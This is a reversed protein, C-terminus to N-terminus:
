EYENPVACILVLPKSSKNRFQHKEGPPIFAFDGKKVKREEGREDVLAGQGEIIYNLHEFPHSHFPTHGNPELTFIRFCFSSTGDDRSIPIQKHVGKVGEIDLKIRPVKDLSVTKM